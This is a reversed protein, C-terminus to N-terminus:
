RVTVVVSRADEWRGTRENWVYALLEYTGPALTTGLRFGAGAPADAHAAEVDPRPVGVAAPGVLTWEGATTVTGAAGTADLRRAWLHVAGIGSGLVAHPDYAWGDIRVGCEAGRVGCEPSRVPVDLHMRVQAVTPDVSLPPTVTVSVNLRESGRVLVLDYTGLYGVPPAWAFYDGVLSAGVPLSRLTGNATLYGADMAQGLRLEFRGQEPVRVRYTGSPDAALPKWAAGLQFGSRGEVGSTIATHGALTVADGISRAPAMRLAEGDTVLAAGRGAITPDTVSNLVNFFRSGIGESRGESDNVGWAITHLGNTLTRTNLDYSGIAARGADLNRFLTPNSTRTTFTDRPSTNGFINAVDDNCYLGNPVPNGVNGRCQNYNVTGVGISDIYVVMTSGNTPILIDANAGTDGSVTNRDPTLAWGFVPITGSVTAGQAPTDLAGFPKGIGANDMTIQTPTDDTRSRGLLTTKGSTDTAFAYIRLTGQGGYPQQTDINPLMSTLMLYGWGGRNAFPLTPYAAEVDPRAGALFAADGIFVVSHSPRSGDPRRRTPSDDFITQCSAQNEFPLCNRYIKVGVVGQDDVVWGTVGIAGVLGTATHGPTDVQGEPVQNDVESRLTLVVPIEVTNPAQVNVGTVTVTACFTGPAAPNTGTPCTQGTPTSAPVFPTNITLTFVGAGGALSNMVSLWPVNSSASWGFSGASSFTVTVTQDPTVGSLGSRVGNVLTETAAFRRTTAPVVSMTPLGDVTLERETTVAQYDPDTPAFVAILTHTGVAPATTNITVASTTGSTRISYAFTGDVNATANLQTATLPTGTLIRAPSPWTVLPLWAGANAIGAVSTQAPLGPQAPTTCNDPLPAVANAATTGLMLERLVAEWPVALTSTPLVPQRATNIKYPMLLSPRYQRITLNDARYVNPCPSWPDAPNWEVIGWRSSRAAVLPAVNVVTRDYFGASNGAVGPGGANANYGTVGMGGYPAIDATTHPSASTLLRVGTDAPPNGFLVDTPIQASYWRDFPVGPATPDAQTTAETIWRAFDRNYRHVMAVRFQRYVQWFADNNQLINVRDTPRPADFGGPIETATSLSGTVAGATVSDDLSWNYYRLDWTTFNQGFDANLQTLGGSGAYRSAQAYAQGELAGGAAYMGAGRLWDRFEAVAFPSYDAWSRLNPNSPDAVDSFRASSMEIEGDGTVAILVTPHAAMRQALLRGFRRIYAEKVRMMKRAYASYTMWGTALGNGETPATWDHYWQVNRLDDTQAGTEVGDVNARIATVLSLGIPLAPSVSASTAQAIANDVQRISDVLMEDTVAFDDAAGAPWTPMTVAVFISLGVKAKPGEGVNTRLRSAMSAITVPTTDNGITGTGSALGDWNPLLYTVTPDLPPVVAAAPTVANSAASPMSDGQSNTAVVTFRYVTGNVLGSMSCVGTGAPGRVPNASQDTGSPLPNPCDGTRVATSTGRVPTATIRYNTIAAGGNSVPPRFAVDAGVNKAWVMGMRPAGPVSAPTPAPESGGAVFVGATSETFATQTLLLTQDSGDFAKMQAARGPGAGAIIARSGNGIVDAVAVRVGSATPEFAFFSHTEAGTAGDFVKVHSSTSAAGVVIEAKGDTGLDGAAVFVGGTFGAFALFSRIEALTVGSFVTVHSGGSATGTIIDAQGDGDVDGAGVTVGGLFGVDFAFFSYMLAGTAGNFVKVQPGAGAGAGAIIEAKGDGNLDGAAVYVGGTFATDFAVFSRIEVGTSGDFVKVQPGGGAGAGTVLDDTGDGNVDGVAVRVGGTFTSQYPSYDTAAGLTTPGTVVLRRALPAAGADRGVAVVARRGNSQALGARGADVAGVSTAQPGALGILLVFGTLVFFSRLPRLHLRM